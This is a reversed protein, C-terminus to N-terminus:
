FCFRIRNSFYYNNKEHHIIKSGGSRVKDAPSSAGAAGAGLFVKSAITAM